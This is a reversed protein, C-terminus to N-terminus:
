LIGNEALRASPVQSAYTETVTDFLGLSLVCALLGGITGTCVLKLKAMVPKVEYTGLLRDRALVEPPKLFTQGDYWGTEEYEIAASLLRNAVYSWSTYM